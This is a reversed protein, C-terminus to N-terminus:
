DMGLVCDQIQIHFSLMGASKNKAVFLSHNDVSLKCGFLM